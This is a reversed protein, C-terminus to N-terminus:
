DEDASESSDMSDDLGDQLFIEEDLIENQDEDPAPNENLLEDIVDQPLVLEEEEQTWIPQLVGDQVQWGQGHQPLPVDPTAEHSRKWICAQFNARLCHQKLTRCCPPLTSLDINVNASVGDEGCKEKLMHHRLSNVHQFRQHSYMFCTFVELEDLLDETVNWNEGLKAFATVFKPKQQM